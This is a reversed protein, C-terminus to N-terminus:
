ADHTVEALLGAMEAANTTAYNGYCNNFVVHVQRAARAADRIPAVWERLEAADYLYRFREM